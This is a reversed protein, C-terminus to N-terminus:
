NQYGPFRTVPNDSIKISSTNDTPPNVPETKRADIHSMGVPAPADEARDCCDQESTHARRWGLPSKEEAYWWSSAAPQISRAQISWCRLYM